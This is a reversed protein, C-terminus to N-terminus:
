LYIFFRSASCTIYKRREPEGYKADIWSGAVHETDTDERVKEDSEKLVDNVQHGHVFHRM